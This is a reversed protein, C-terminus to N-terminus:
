WFNKKDTKRWYVIFAAGVIAGGVHALHAINDGPVVYISNYLEWLFYGGVLYKAKVPIAFYIMFETNPFLIAFAAMIGFVAGSAGVMPTSAMDVYHNIFYSDKEFYSFSTGQRLHENIETLNYGLSGLQKKLQMLEYFGISNYLVFAGLACAIYFIFFRKEGWLRELYSGLIVFLYMNMFLHWIGAHMFFHTVIQYPEFQPSNIYHAGLLDILNIGKSEFIITAIFFLVNLILINKTVQPINNLFSFM